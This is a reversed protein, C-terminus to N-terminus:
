SHNAQERAVALLEATRRGNVRAERALRILRVGSMGTTDVVRRRCNCGYHVGQPPPGRQPGEGRFFVLGDLSKCGPCANVKAHWREIAPIDADLPDTEM